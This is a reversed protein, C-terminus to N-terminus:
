SAHGRAPAVTGVWEMRQGESDLLRNEFSLEVQEIRGKPITMFSKIKARKTTDANPPRLACFGTHCGDGPCVCTGIHGPLTGSGWGTAPGSNASVVAFGHISVPLGAVPTLLTVRGVM